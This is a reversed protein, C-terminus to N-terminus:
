PFKNTFFLCNRAREKNKRFYKYSQVDLYFRSTACNTAHWTRSTSTAPELRTMGVFFVSIEIFLLNGYKKKHLNLNLNVVNSEKRM